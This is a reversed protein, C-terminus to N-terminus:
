VLFEVENYQNIFGVLSNVRQRNVPTDPFIKTAAYVMEMKPYGRNLLAKVAKIDSNIEDTNNEIYHTREHMLIFMRMPVTYNSFDKKNIEIEGTDHNVRAPTNIVEGNEKIEDMLIFKNVGDHWVGTNFESCHKAFYEASNIFKLEQESFVGDNTDLYKTQIKKLYFKSPNNNGATVDVIMKGSATVPTNLIVKLEGNKQVPIKRNHYCANKVTDDCVKIYICPPNDTSPSVKEISFTLLVTLSVDHSFIEFKM